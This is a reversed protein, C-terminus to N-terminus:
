SGKNVTVINHNKSFFVFRFFVHNRLYAFQQTLKVVSIRISLNSYMGLTPSQRM